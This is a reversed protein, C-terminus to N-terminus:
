MLQVTLEAINAPSLMDQVVFIFGYLNANTHSV